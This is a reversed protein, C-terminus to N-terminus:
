FIVTGDLRTQSVGVLANDVLQRYNRESRELAEERSRVAAAMSQFAQALDDVERYGGAPVAPQAQYAGLAVSRTAVALAEVPRVVRRAMIVSAGAALAAFVLGAAILGFQLRRVGALAGQLPESVLVAWGTGQVPWVSGLWDRGQFHYAASSVRGELGARVLPADLFAHEDALRPDSAAVVAGDRGVIVATRAGELGLTRIVGDVAKRDLFAVVASQGHAVVLALVPRGTLLSSTTSWVPRGSEVAERV